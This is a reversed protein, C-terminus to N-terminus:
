GIFSNHDLIVGRMWKMSQNIPFKTNKLAARDQWHELCVLDHRLKLKFNFEIQLDSVYLYTFPIV